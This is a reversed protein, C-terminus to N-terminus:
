RSGTLNGITERIEAVEQEVEELAVVVLPDFLTGTGKQITRIATHHDLREEEPCLRTLADYVDAVAIIRALIPIKTRSLGEPYGSGDYREHHHKVAAKVMAFLGKDPILEAGLIAHDRELCDEEEEAHAIVGVKLGKGIDHLWAAYGLATLEEENLGLKGAILRSINYVRQSHGMFVPNRAEIGALLSNVLIQQTQQYEREMQWRKFWIISQQALIKFTERTKPNLKRPIADAWLLFAQREGPNHLPYVLLWAVGEPWVVSDDEGKIFVKEEQAQELQPGLTNALPILSSDGLKLGDKGPVIFLVKEIGLRRSWAVLQELATVNNNQKGIKQIAKILGMLHSFRQMLGQNLAIFYTMMIGAALILMAIVVDPVWGTLVVAVILATIVLGSLVIQKTEMTEGELFLNGKDEIFCTTKGVMYLFLDM